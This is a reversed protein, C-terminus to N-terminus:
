DLTWKGVLLVERELAFGYKERVREEIHRIIRYVQDASANGNNVIINAHLPSVMAEGITFGKLGLTDIIEGTSKGFGRNNKFVSGASPALFHGKKERDAKKADMEFRIKKADGKQLAISGELIIVNMNPFPSRKYDFDCASAHIKHVKMDEDLFTVSDLVDSVSVGYCRANMWIAGGVTGPMSYIFELGSMSHDLAAESVDSILSGSKAIIATDSIEIGSFSTLDIVMGEIGNDSVLINSGAGLFFWPINNVRAFSVLAMLEDLDHPRVFIDAPGGIKFSTHNSMPEDFLIPNRINIKNILDRLNPM